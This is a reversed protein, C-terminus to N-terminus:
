WFKWDDKWVVWVGLLFNTIAHATIADGLRNKWLVLGQYVFACLIGALWQQHEFGFLIATVILAVPHFRNLPEQNFDRSAVFRYVFSRWFVEELVPVLLSSGAIRVVIFFWALASGPGFMANPNWPVPAAAPACDKALGVKALAPCIYQSYLHSTGPYWRDLGVWLAFVAVGAIVAPWTFKWTREAETFYRACFLLTVAGAITKGLYIWYRGAEGASDQFATLLIFVAFPLVRVLAPSQAIRETM